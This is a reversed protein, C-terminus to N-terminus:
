TGNRTRNNQIELKMNRIKIQGRNNRKVKVNSM